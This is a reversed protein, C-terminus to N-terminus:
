HRVMFDPIAVLRKTKWINQKLKEAMFTKGHAPYVITLNNALLKLWSNYYENLNDISITMYKSGSMNVLLNNMASDGCYCSGDDLVVSISDKTHGPTYVIKGNIGLERLLCNDDDEVIIDEDRVKYAPFTLTWNPKLWKRIVLILRVINNPIGGRENKPRLLNANKGASLLEISFRHMIVRIKDNNEVLYSVLGSHDDHHHTLLLYNIDKISISNKLLEQNFIDLDSEYGTDILLYGDKAKILFCNTKSLKLCIVQMSM